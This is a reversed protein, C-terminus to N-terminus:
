VDVADCLFGMQACLGILIVQEGTLTLNERAKRNRLGLGRQIIGQPQSGLVDEIRQM